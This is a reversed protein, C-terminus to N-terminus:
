YMIIIKRDKVKYHVNSLELIRLVDNLSSKREIKGGFEREPIQGEYVIGVDYWRSIQRLVGPLSEHNFHFYGNKWAVVEEVDVDKKLTMHGQQLIAQEGPTLQVTASNHQVQVAGTLLTTRINSEDEYGMINFHTGLVKVTINNVKVIFPMSADPAIEFYAEGNLEVERTHGSFATPYSLSTAANLWVKSGDPLVVMFQGGKPTVLSNKLLEKTEGKGAKYALQGNNLKMIQVNGQHAIAGNSASDLTIRSGDALTLIAKNGGPMIPISSTAALSPQINQEPSRTFYLIGIGLLLLITAAVAYVQRRNATVPKRADESLVGDLAEEWQQRMVDDELSDLLTNVEEQSIDGRM